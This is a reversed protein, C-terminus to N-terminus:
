QIRRSQSPRRSLSGKWRRRLKMMLGGPSTVTISNPEVVVRVAEDRDYDRHVIANVIMEKLAIANYANVTRSVEAKLRFQLNALALLDTLTDLQSWLNGTIRRRVSFHNANDSAELDVDEGFRGRLWHSPGDALFEVRAQPFQESPNHSFLLWGALTPVVDTGVPRALDLRDTM